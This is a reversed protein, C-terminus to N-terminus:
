KKKFKKAKKIDRNIRSCLPQLNTYHNLKIIEEETKASSIPIIHDIDWGYNLEGNYLGYNEWSMWNEFKSELYIKFEEFSCGISELLPISNSKLFNGRKLSKNLRRTFGHKLRYMIDTDMKIKHNDRRNKRLKDKNKEYYEKYKHKNKEYSNKKSIKLKQKKEDSLNDLKLKITEKNNSYYQKKYEKIKEKRLMNIEKICSKCRNEIRGDKRIYFNDIDKLLNCKKCVKEM